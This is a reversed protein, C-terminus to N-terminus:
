QLLDITSIFFWMILFSEDLQLEGLRALLKEEQRIVKEQSYLGAPMIAQQGLGLLTAEVALTLYTEERDRSGSVRLHRFRLPPPPVSGEEAVSEDLHFGM